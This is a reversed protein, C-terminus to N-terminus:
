PSRQFRDAPFAFPDRVLLGNPRAIVQPTVNTFFNRDGEPTAVALAQSLGFTRVPNGPVLRSQAIDLLRDCAAMMDIWRSREARRAEQVEKPEGATARPLEGRQTLWAAAAVADGAMGAAEQVAANSFAKNFDRLLLNQVEIMGWLFSGIEPRNWEDQKLGRLRGGIARSARIIAESGLGDRDIRAGELLARVHMDVVLPDRETELEGAITDMIQLARANQIAPSSQSLARLTRSLGFAAAYRDAADEDRISEEVLAIGDETALEGAIYLAMRAVGANESQRLRRLEPTLAESYFTRFSVSVQTREFPSILRSKARSWEAPETGDLRSVNFSVFERILQEDSPGNPGQSVIQDPLPPQAVCITAFMWAALTAALVQLGRMRNSGLSEAGPRFDM